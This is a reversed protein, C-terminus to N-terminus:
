AGWGWNLIFMSAITLVAAVALLLGMAMLAGVVQPPPGVTKEFRAPDHWYPEDEPVETSITACPGAHGRARTCIWGTPPRDCILYAAMDGPHPTNPVYNEGRELEDISITQRVYTLRGNTARM